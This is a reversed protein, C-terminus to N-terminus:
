VGSTTRDIGPVMCVGDSVSPTQYSRTRRRRGGYSSRERGRGINEDQQVLQTARGQGRGQNFRM